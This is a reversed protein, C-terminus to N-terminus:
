SYAANFIVNIQAGCDPNNCASISANHHEVISRTLWLGIGMGHEKTTFFPDFIQDPSAAHIGHGNDIISLTATQGAIASQIKIVRAHDVSQLADKANTLLNLVVTELQGHDGAVLISPNVNIEIAIKHKDMDRALLDCCDHVLQYLNIDTFENAGRRFLKDVRKVIREVRLNDNEVNTLLETLLKAEPQESAVQKLTDINLKTACLPQNLEHALSGALAGLMGTKEAMSLRKLLANKDSLLDKLRTNLQESTELEKALRIQERLNNEIYISGILLYNLIVLTCWGWQIGITIIGETLFSTYEHGVNGAVVQGRIFLLASSLVLLVMIARRQFIGYENKNIFLETIQWGYLVIAVSTMWIVRDAFVGYFQLYTLRAIVVIVGAWVYREISKANTIRWSRYLLLAEVASCVLLFNGLVIPIVQLSSKLEHLIPVALFALHSLGFYFTARNFRKTSHGDNRIFKHSLLVIALSLLVFFLSFIFYTAAM